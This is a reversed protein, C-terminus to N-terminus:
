LRPKPEIPLLCSRPTDLDLHPHGLGLYRALIRWCQGAKLLGRNRLSGMLETLVRAVTHSVVRSGLM